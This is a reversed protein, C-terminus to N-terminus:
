RKAKLEEQRAFQQWKQRVMNTYDMDEGFRPDAQERRISDRTLPQSTPTSGVDDPAFGASATNKIMSEFFEVGSADSMVKRITDYHNEDINKTIWKNVANIRSDANEGLKGKEEEFNAKTQSYVDSILSKFADVGVNNDKAWQKLTQDVGEDPADWGEPYEYGDIDDPIGLSQIYDNQAEAHIEKRLDDTKKSYSKYLESYGKAQDEASNFKDLLWDPRESKEFMTGDASASETETETAAEESM